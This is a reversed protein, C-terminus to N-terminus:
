GDAMLVRLTVVNSVNLRRIQLHNMLLTILVWGVLAPISLRLQFYTQCIDGAFLLRQTRSCLRDSFTEVIGGFALNFTWLKGRGGSSSRVGLCRTM